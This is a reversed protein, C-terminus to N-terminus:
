NLVFPGPIPASFLYNVLVVKVQIPYGNTYETAQGGGEGM